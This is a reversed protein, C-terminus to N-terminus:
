HVERGSLWERYLTMALDNCREYEIPNGSELGEILLYCAAKAEDPVKEGPILQFMASLKTIVQGCIFMRRMEASTWNQRVFDAVNPPLLEASM